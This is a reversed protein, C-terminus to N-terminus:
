TDLNASWCSPGCPWGGNPETKTFEITDDFGGLMEGTEDRLSFTVHHSGSFDGEGLAYEVTDQEAILTFNGDLGFMGNAGATLSGEACTGDLCVAADYPTGPILDHGIAFRLQNDCGIATCSCGALFAVFTVAAL